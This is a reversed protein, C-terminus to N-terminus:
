PAAGNASDQRSYHSPSLKARNEYVIVLNLDPHSNRAPDLLPNRNTSDWMESDLHPAGM